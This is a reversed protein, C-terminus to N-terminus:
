DDTNSTVSAVISHGANSRVKTIDFCLNQIPRDRLHRGWRRQERENHSRGAIREVERGRNSTQGRPSCPNPAANAM